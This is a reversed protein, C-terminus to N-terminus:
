DNLSVMGDAYKCIGREILIMIARETINDLTTTKRNFGFLQATVRKLDEIPMSIQQEIAYRAASIFEPLPIEIIDRQSNTRFFDSNKATEENEWYIIRM